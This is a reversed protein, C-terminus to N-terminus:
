AYRVQVEARSLTGRAATLNAVQMKGPISSAGPYTWPSKATARNTAAGGAISDFHALLITNADTTFPASPVTLTGATYRPTNSVRYEDIRGSFPSVLAGAPVGGAGLVWYMSASPMTTGATSSYALTGDLYLRRVSGADWVYALHHWNTDAIPVATDFAAAGTSIFINNSAAFFLQLSPFGTAGAINLFIEQTALRGRKIFMEHTWRTVGLAHQGFNVYSPNTGSTQDFDAANSFSAQGAPTTIPGFISGTWGSASSDTFTPGPGTSTTNADLLTAAAGDLLKAQVVDGGVLGNFTAVLRIQPTKGQSADLDATGVDILANPVDALTATLSTGPGPMTFVQHEYSTRRPFTRFPNSITPQETGASNFLFSPTNGTRFANLSWLFGGAVAGLEWIGRAAAMSAALPVNSDSASLASGLEGIMIPIGPFANALVQFDAASPAPGSASPGLLNYYPHYDMYDLNAAIWVLNADSSLAGTPTATLQYSATLPKTTNARVTPLLTALLDRMTVGAGLQTQVWSMNSENVLDIGIVNSYTNVLAALTAVNPLLSSVSASGTLGTIPAYVATPTGSGLGVLTVQCYLGAAKIKNLATTVNAVYTAMSITNAYVETLELYVTVANAGVALAEAVQTDIFTPSFASGLWQSWNGKSGNAM